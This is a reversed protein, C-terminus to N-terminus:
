PKLCRWWSANCGPPRSEEPYSLAAEIALRGEPEMEALIARQEAPESDEILQVADDTDLQDAIEAM